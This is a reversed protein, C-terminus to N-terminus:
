FGVKSMGIRGGSLWETAQQLKNDPRAAEREAQEKLIQRLVQSPLLSDHM